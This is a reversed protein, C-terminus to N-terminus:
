RSLAAWPAAACIPAPWRPATSIPRRRCMPRRSRRLGKPERDRRGSERAGARSPSRVAQVAPVSGRRGQTRGQGRRESFGHEAMEDLPTARLINCRTTRMAARRQTSRAARREQFGRLACGGFRAGSRRRPRQHAAGDHGRQSIRRPGRSRRHAALGRPLRPDHGRHQLTGSVPRRGRSVPLTAGTRRLHRRCARAPRRHVRSRAVRAGAAPMLAHPFFLHADAVNGNDMTSAMTLIPSSGDNPQRWAAKAHASAGHTSLQLIRADGGLIGGREAELLAHDQARESQDASPVAGPWNFVAAPTDIVVHGGSENGALMGSLGRLGPARGVPAFGVGSSGPTSRAAALPREGHHAGLQARM